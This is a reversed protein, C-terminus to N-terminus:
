PAFRRDHSRFPNSSNSLGLLAESPNHLAVLRGFPRLLPSFAADEHPLAPPNCRGSPPYLAETPM